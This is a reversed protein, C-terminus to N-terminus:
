CKTKALIPAYEVKRADRPPISRHSFSSYVLIPAVLLRVPKPNDLSAEEWVQGRRVPNVAAPDVPSSDSRRRPM